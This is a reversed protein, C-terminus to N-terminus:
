QYQSNSHGAHSYSAHALHMTDVSILYEGSLLLELKSINAQIERVLLM